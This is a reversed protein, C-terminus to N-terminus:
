IGLHCQQAEPAAIEERVARGLHASGGARWRIPHRQEAVYVAVMGGEGIKELTKHRGIVTGPAESLPVAEATENPGPRSDVAISDMGGARAEFLAGVGAREVVDGQCAGEIFASRVEPDHIEGALFFIHEEDM